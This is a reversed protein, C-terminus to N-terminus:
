LGPPPPASPQTVDAVVFWRGAADRTWIRIYAGSENRPTKV